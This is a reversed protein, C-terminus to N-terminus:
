LDLPLKAPCFYFTANRGNVSKSTFWRAFEPLLRVNLLARNIRPIEFERVSPNIGLLLRVAIWAHPVPKAPVITKIWTALIAAADKDGKCADTIYATIERPAAQRMPNDLTDIAERAREAFRGLDLLLSNDEVLECLQAATLRQGRSLWYRIAETKEDTSGDIRLIDAKRMEKAKKMSINFRECFEFINM